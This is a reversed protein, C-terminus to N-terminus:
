SHLKINKFLFYEFSYTNLLYVRKTFGGCVLWKNKYHSFDWPSFFSYVVNCLGIDYVTIKDICLIVVWMRFDCKKVSSYFESIGMIEANQKHRRKNAKIVRLNATWRIISRYMFIWNKGQWVPATTKFINNKIDLIYM